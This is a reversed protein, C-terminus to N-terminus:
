LLANACDINTILINIYKGAIASKVAKAKKAGAVIGIRRPVSNAIEFPMAAVRENFHKFKERSGNEDYFQLSVDGVAGMKVFEDMEAISTYKARILTSETREPIGIGM